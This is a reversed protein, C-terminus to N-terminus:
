DVLEMAPSSQEQEVNRHRLIPNETMTYTEKEPDFPAKADKTDPESDPEELEQNVFPEGKDEITMHERIAAGPNYIQIMILSATIMALYIGFILFELLTM